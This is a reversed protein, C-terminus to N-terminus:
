IAWLPRSKQYQKMREARVRERHPDKIMVRYLYMSGFLLLSLTFVGALALPLKFTFTDGLLPGGTKNSLLTPEAVNTATGFIGQVSSTLTAVPVAPLVVSSLSTPIPNPNIFVSFSSSSTTIPNPDIFVSFSSSRSTTVPVPVFFSTSSTSSPLLLSSTEASSATTSVSAM